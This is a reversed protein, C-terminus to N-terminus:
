PLARRSRLRGPPGRPQYCPPRRTARNRVLSPLGGQNQRTWASPLHASAGLLGGFRTLFGSQWVSGCGQLRFPCLPSGVCKAQEREGSVGGAWPKQITWRLATPRKRNAFWLLALGLRRIGVEKVTLNIGM